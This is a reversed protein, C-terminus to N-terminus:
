ETRASVVFLQKVGLQALHVSGVVTDVDDDNGVKDKDKM